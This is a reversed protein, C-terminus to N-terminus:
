STLSDKPDYEVHIHDSELIVDFDSGLAFTLRNVVNSAVGESLHSIRLDFACGTYHKSARSHKGETVSTVIMQYGAETYIGNAALLAVLLEPKIGNLRVGQKLQM